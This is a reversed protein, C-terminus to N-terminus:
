RRDQRSRSGGSPRSWDPRSAFAPWTGSALDRVWGHLPDARASRLRVSKETSCSAGNEPLDRPISRLCRADASSATHRGYCSTAVEPWSLLSRLLASSWPGAGCYYSSGGVTALIDAWFDDADPYRYYRDLAERARETQGSYIYNLVLGLIACKPTGDLGDFPGSGLAMGARATHRAIEEVYVEPFEHSAPVYGVGPVFKLVVPVLPSNSFSCYRCAFSDDCTLHEYVGDGDLDRFEGQCEGGRGVPYRTVEPGPSYLVTGFCCHAGWTFLHVIADPYGDATVDLGTHPDLAEAYIEEAIKEEHWYPARADVM